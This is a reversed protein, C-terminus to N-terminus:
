PISSLVTLKKKIPGLINIFRVGKSLQDKARANAINEIKSSDAELGSLQVEFFSIFLHTKVQHIAPDIQQTVKDRWYSCM